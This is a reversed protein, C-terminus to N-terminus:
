SPVSRSFFLEEQCIISVFMSLMALMEVTTYCTHHRSREHNNNGKEPLVGLKYVLEMSVQQLRRGRHINESCKRAMNKIQTFSALIQQETSWALDLVLNPRNTADHQALLRQCISPNMSM